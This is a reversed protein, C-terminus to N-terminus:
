RKFFRSVKHTNDPTLFVFNNIYISPNQKDKSDKSNKINQHYEKRFDEIKELNGNLFFFGKYGLVSLFKWVNNVSNPKHREEAEIILSPKDRRLLAEAGHLVAEEHGEVDIKILGVPGLAFDDLRRTPVTIVEIESNNNTDNEKEITARTLMNKPFRLKAEGNKDSLAVSEIVTHKKFTRRLLKALEPIPEFAWCEKSYKLMQRTYIGWNAGVDLTIKDKVALYPILDFEPEFEVVNSLKRKLLFDPAFHELGKKGLSKFRKSLTPM